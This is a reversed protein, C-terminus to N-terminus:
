LAEPGAALVEVIDAEQVEDGLRDVETRCVERKGFEVGRDVVLVRGLRDVEVKDSGKPLAAHRNDGYFGMSRDHRACVVSCLGHLHVRDLILVELVFMDELDTEDRLPTTYEGFDTAHFSSPVKENM